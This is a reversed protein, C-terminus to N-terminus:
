LLYTPYCRYLFYGFPFFLPMHLRLMSFLSSFGKKPTASAQSILTIFNNYLKFQFTTTYTHIVSKHSLCDSGTNFCLCCFVRLCPWTLFLILYYEGLILRLVEYVVRNLQKTTYNNNRWQFWIAITNHIFQVSSRTNVKVLRCMNQHAKDPCKTLNTKWKECFKHQQINILTCSFVCHVNQLYKVTIIWGNIKFDCMKWIWLNGISVECPIWKCISQSLNFLGRMNAKLTIFLFRQSNLFITVELYFICWHPANYM